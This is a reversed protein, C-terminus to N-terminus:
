GFFLLSVNLLFELSQFQFAPQKGVTGVGGVEPFWSKVSVAVSVRIRCISTEGIALVHFGVVDVRVTTVVVRFVDLDVGVSHKLRFYVFALGLAFTRVTLFTFDLLDDPLRLRGSLCTSLTGLGGLKGIFPVWDCLLLQVSLMIHWNDLGLDLWVRIKTLLLM